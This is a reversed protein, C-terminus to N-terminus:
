RTLRMEKWAKTERLQECARCRRLGDANFFSNGEYPHNRACRDRLSLHEPNVCRLNGCSSRLRTARELQGHRLEYALHRASRGRDKVSLVPYKGNAMPGTWLWCGTESERISHAELRTLLAETM